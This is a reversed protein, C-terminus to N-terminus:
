SVCTMNIVYDIEANISFFRIRIESDDDYYVRSRLPKQSAYDCVIM